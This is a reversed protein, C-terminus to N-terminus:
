QSLRLVQSAVQQFAAALQTYDPAFVFSGTPRSPDYINSRPDNSVRELFTQFDVNADPAGGLGIVYVVTDFGLKNGSTDLDKIIRQAQADATNLSAHVVAAPVDVRLNSSNAYPGTQVYDSPATVYGITSNGYSDTAPIYAIDQRMYKGDGNTDFKCGTASILPVNNGNCISLGPCGSATTTPVKTQMLGVTNGTSVAGGSWQAIVGTLFGNTGLTQCQATTAPVSSKPTGTNPDIDYRDDSANKAPFTATVGNPQGDTFFVIVNLAGNSSKASPGLNQIEQYALNLAAASNTNSGCVLQSIYYNLNHPTRSQFDTVPVPNAVPPFPFDSNAGATFTILGLRDRGDTFYNVFTQASAKMTSCASGGMSGSRDLVLIINADRRSSAAVASVTSTKHGLIGMFYAPVTVSANVTVRRTSQQPFDVAATPGSSFTTGQWGTPFNANVYQTAITQAVGAPNRGAALAAADVAASLKAKTWFLISGDIALGIMPIVVLVTLFTFLILSAGREHKKSSSRTSRNPLQRM